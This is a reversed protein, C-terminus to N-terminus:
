GTEGVLFARVPSAEAGDLRLPVAVLTFFGPAVRDLDLGELIMMGHAVCSRHAPLWAASPEDVSPTDLGVLVVDAGALFEVLAPSLSAFAPPIPAGAPWTGTSFLVRPASPSWGSPLDERTIPRDHGPLAVVECRGVCVGLPLSGVDAGSPDLHLPADLHTGIHPSLRLCSVAAAGVGHPQTWRVSLPEDGPWVATTPSLPRTIDTIPGNV